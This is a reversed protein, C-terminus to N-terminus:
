SGKKTLHRDTSLAQFDVVTSDGTKPIKASYTEFDDGIIDLLAAIYGVALNTPSKAHINIGLVDGICSYGHEDFKYQGNGINTIIM